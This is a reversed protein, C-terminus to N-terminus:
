LVCSSKSIIADPQEPNTFPNFGRPLLRYSGTRCFHCLATKWILNTICRAFPLNGTFDGVCIWLFLLWAKWDCNRLLFSTPFDFACSIHQLRSRATLLISWFTKKMCLKREHLNIRGTQPISHALRRIYLLYVQTSFSCQRFLYIVMYQMTSHWCTLM